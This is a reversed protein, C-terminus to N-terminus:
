EIVIMDWYELYPLTFTVAGNEYTFELEEAIGERYDPSAMWVSEPRDEVPQTVTLNRKVVPPTQTGRSDVWAATSAGDFNILHLVDMGGRKRTFSFLEGPEAKKSVPRGDAFTRIGKKEELGPGRLCNEYATMFSYWRRLRGELEKSIRLSNGPYYESSLMGTDGLELHSGGSAMLIADTYLIGPLNFPEGKMVNYDMYAAIVSGKTGKTAAYMTDLMNKLSMYDKCDGPWVEMYAMDYCGSNLMQLLGYGGVPNFLIRTDLAENLRKLFAAYTQDLEVKNGYYDYRPANRNGLSDMQLGDFPYAALMDRHADIFHDQWREDAPNFMWLKETEWGSGSLDHVDQEMHREDKYLGWEPSIGKEQYGDYAGFILNYFFSGMNRDHGGQITKLLSDRTVTQGALSKWSVAPEAVTGALPKEQTDFVDYYFLGNIHHKKLRDLTEAIERDTRNDLKTIYGYRPFMNWDSSVDIASMAYDLLANGDWVYAELAYGTFDDGPLAAPIELMSGAGALPIDQRWVTELMHRACLTLVPNEGTVSGKLEVTVNVTEGPNYRSKDTYIDQIVAGTKIQKMATERIEEQDGQGAAAEMAPAAGALLSAALLCSLFRHRNRM